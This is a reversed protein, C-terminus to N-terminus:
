LFYWQVKVRGLAQAALKDFFVSSVDIDDYSCGAGLPLNTDTNHLDALRIGQDLVSVDTLSPLNSAPKRALGRTLATLESRAAM